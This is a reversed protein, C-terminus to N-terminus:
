IPTVLVDGEKDLNLSQLTEELNIELIFIGNTKLAQYINQFVSTLEELNM